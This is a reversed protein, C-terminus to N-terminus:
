YGKFNKAQILYYTEVPKYKGWRKIVVPESVSEFDQKLGGPVRKQFVLLFKGQVPKKLSYDLEYHNDLHDSPNWVYLHPFKGRLQYATQASAVRTNTVIDCDGCKALEAEVQDRWHHWNRVTKFMDPGNTADPRAWNVITDSHYVVVMLLINTALMAIKLARSDVMMRGAIVAAAIYTPAAWNAYARGKLAQATIVLLFVVSFLLLLWDTPTRTGAQQRAFRFLWVVFIGFSVPGFIGFQEGIFTLAKSPHLGQVGKSSLEATHRLTPWGNDANWIVNPLFILVAILGGVWVKPNSFHYRYDRNIAVMLLASVAFIGMTYKTMLGLGAAVGTAIWLGWTNKELAQAFFILSLTWFIFLVVDTTILLSSLSIAPMTIFALASWFGVEKSKTLMNALYYVLLTTIPYFILAPSRIAHESSGFMDTFARIVVALMPPKSYYGWDLHQSWLWYQAEDFHLSMHQYSWATAARYITLVVIIMLLMTLSTYRSSNTSLANM